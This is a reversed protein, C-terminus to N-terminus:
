NSMVGLIVSIMVILTVALIIFAAATTILATKLGKIKYTLGFIVVLLLLASLAYLVTFSM